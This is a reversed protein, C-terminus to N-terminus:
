RRECSHERNGHASPHTTHLCVTYMATQLRDSRRTLGDITSLNPRRALMTSFDWFSSRNRISGHGNTNSSIRGDTTKELPAHTPARARAPSPVHTCTHRPTPAPTVMDAHAHPHGLTGAYPHTPTQKKQEQKNTESENTVVCCPRAWDCVKEYKQIEQAGTIHWPTKRSM